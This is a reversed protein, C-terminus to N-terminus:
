VAGVGLLGIVAIMAGALRAPGQAQAFLVVGFLIAAPGALANLQQNSVEAAAAFDMLGTM